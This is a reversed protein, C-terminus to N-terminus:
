EKWQQIIGVLLFLFLWVAAKEAKISGASLLFEIYMTALLVLCFLFTRKSKLRFMFICAIYFFVVGFTRLDSSDPIYLIDGLIALFFVALIAPQYKKCVTYAKKIQLPISVKQIVNNIIGIGGKLFYPSVGCYSEM